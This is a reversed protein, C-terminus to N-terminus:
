NVDDEDDTVRGVLRRDHLRWEVSREAEVELIEAAHEPLEFTLMETGPGINEIEVPAGSYDTAREAVVIYLDDDIAEVYFTAMEGEGVGVDRARGSPVVARHRGAIDDVTIATSLSDRGHEVSDLKSELVSVMKGDDVGWRLERGEVDRVDALEPHISRSGDVALVAPWGDDQGGRPDFLLKHLDGDHEHTVELLKRSELDLADTLQDPPQLVYGDEDVEQMLEMRRQLAEGTGEESQREIEIEDDELQSEFRLKKPVMYVDDMVTHESLGAREAAEQHSLVVAKREVSDFDLRESVGMMINKAGGVALVDDNEHVTYIFAPPGDDSRNASPRKGVTSEAVMPQIMKSVEQFKEVTKRTEDKTMEVQKSVDRVVDHDSPM